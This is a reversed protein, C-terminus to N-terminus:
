KNVNDGGEKRAPRQLVEVLTEKPLGFCVRTGLREGVTGMEVVTGPPYEGSGELVPVLSAAANPLVMAEKQTEGYYIGGGDPQVNFQAIQLIPGNLSWTLAMELAIRIYTTDSGCPVFKSM